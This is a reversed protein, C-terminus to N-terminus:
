FFIAKVVLITSLSLGVAISVFLPLTLMIERIGRFHGNIRDLTANAKRLEAMCAEFGPSKSAESM